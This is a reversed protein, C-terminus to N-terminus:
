KKYKWALFYKKLLNLNNIDKYEDICLTASILDSGLQYNFRKQKLEMTQLLNPTKILDIDDNDCCLICLRENESILTKYNDVCKAYTYQTFLLNGNKDFKKYTIKQKQKISLPKSLIFTCEICTDSDECIVCYFNDYDKINGCIKCKSWQSQINGHINDNYTAIAIIKKFLMNLSKNCQCLYKIMTWKSFKVLDVKLYNSIIDIFINLDTNM